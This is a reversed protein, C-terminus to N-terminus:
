RSRYKIANHCFANYAAFEDDTLETRDRGGSWMIVDIDVIDSLHDFDETRNSWDYGDYNLEQFIYPMACADLKRDDPVPLGHTRVLERVHELFLRRGRGIPDSYSSRSAVATDIKDILQTASIPM